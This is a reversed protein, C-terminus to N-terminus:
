RMSKMRVHMFHDVGSDRAATVEGHKGACAVGKGARTCAEQKMGRLMHIALRLAQQEIPGECIGVADEVRDM